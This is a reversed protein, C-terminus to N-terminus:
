VSTHRVTLYFNTDINLEAGQSEASIEVSLSTIDVDAM